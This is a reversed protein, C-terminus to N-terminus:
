NKNSINSNKLRRKHAKKICQSIPCKRIYRTTGQDAEKTLIVRKSRFKNLSSMPKNRMKKNLNNFVKRIDTKSLNKRRREKRGKAVKTLSKYSKYWMSLFNEAKQIM